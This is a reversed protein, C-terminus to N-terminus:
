PKGALIDAIVARTADWSTRGQEILTKVRAVQTNTFQAAYDRIEQTDLHQTAKRTATNAADAAQHPEELGLVDYLSRQAAGAAKARGAAVPSAPTGPAPAPATVVRRAGRAAPPAAPAAAPEEFLPLAAPAAAPPPTAAPAAAPTAAPTGTAPAAAAPPAGAAAAEAQGKLREVEAIAANKLKGAREIEKVKANWVRRTAEGSDMGAATLQDRTAQEVENLVMKPVAAAAAPVQGLAPAAGGSAPANVKFALPQDSVRMRFGTGTALPAGPAPPAAATLAQPPPVQPPPGSAPANTGTPPPIVPPAPANAKFALPENSLRAVSGTGTSPPTTVVPEAPPATVKFALPEDSLRAVSGTPTAPPTTVAPPPANVKFALPEDSVRALSGTGTSNPPITAPGREAAAAGKGGRYGSALVAAVEALPAPIGMKTLAFKAAWYKAQQVGIDGAVGGAVTAKAALGAGASAMARVVPLSTALVAEPPMGLLSNDARTRETGAGSGAAPHFVMGGIGRDEWAGATPQPPLAQGGHASMLDDLTQQDPM